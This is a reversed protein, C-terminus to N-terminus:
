CVRFQALSQVCVQQQTAGKTLMYRNRVDNIDIDKVFPHEASGGESGGTGSSAFQAAIKAAIAAAQAAAEAPDLKKGTSPAPESTSESSKVPGEQDWKSKSDSTMLTYSLHNDNFLFFDVSRKASGEPIDKDADLCSRCAKTRRSIGARMRVVGGWFLLRRDRAKRRGSSESRFKVTTLLVLIDLGQDAARVSDRAVKNAVGLNLGRSGCDLPATTPFNEGQISKLRLKVLGSV